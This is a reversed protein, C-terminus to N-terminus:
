APLACESATCFTSVICSTALVTVLPDFLNRLTRGAHTGSYKQLPSWTAGARAGAGSNGRM